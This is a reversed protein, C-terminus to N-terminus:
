TSSVGGVTVTLKHWPSFNVDFDTVSLRSTYVPYAPKDNTAYVPISSCACPRHVAQPNRWCPPVITKREERKGPHIPLVFGKLAKISETNSASFANFAFICQLCQSAVHHGGHELSRPEALFIRVVRCYANQNQVRTSSNPQMTHFAMGPKSCEFSNEMNAFM